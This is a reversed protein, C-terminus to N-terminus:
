RNRGDVEMKACVKDITKQLKKFDSEEEANERALLRHEERRIKRIESELDIPNEFNGHFERSLIVSSSGLRVHESLVMEGPVMGEGIKAIGGFGFPIGAGHAQRAMFEVLGSSVLEFMFMLRLGLHLDNLGIYVESVGNIKLIQHFRVMAQPTEVLPMVKCRGAVINCFQEVENKGYFMPLMLIDAGANIAQNVEQATGSYLPNLRVLLETEPVVKRVRAVDGILHRSIVTNLHGQREVKGNIELDIFIRDVGAEAAKKAIEEENTIMMLKIM